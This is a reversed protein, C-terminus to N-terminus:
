SGPAMGGRPGLCHDSWVKEFQQDGSTSRLVQDGQIVAHARGTAGQNDRVRYDICAVGDETVRVEDVEIHAANGVSRELAAIAAATRDSRERADRDAATSFLPVFAVTSAVFLKLTDM